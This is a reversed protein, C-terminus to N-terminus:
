WSLLIISFKSRCNEIKYLLITGKANYSASKFHFRFILLYKKSWTSALKNKGNHVWCIISTAIQRHAQSNLVTFASYYSWNLLQEQLVQLCSHQPQFKNRKEDNIKSEDNRGFQAFQRTALARSKKVNQTEFETGFLQMFFCFWLLSEEYITMKLNCILHLISIDGKTAWKTRTHTLQPANPGCAIVNNHKTIRMSSFDIPLSLFCLM